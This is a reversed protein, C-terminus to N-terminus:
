SVAGRSKKFSQRMRQDNKMSIFMCVAGLLLLCSSTIPLLYEVDIVGRWVMLIIIMIMM